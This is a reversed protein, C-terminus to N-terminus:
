NRIEMWFVDIRENMEQLRNLSFPIDFNLQDLIESLCKLNKLFLVFGLVYVTDSM